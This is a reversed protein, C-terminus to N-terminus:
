ASQRDELRTSCIGRRNEPSVDCTNSMVIGLIPAQKNEGFQIVQLNTWGDGQLVDHGHQGAISYYNFHNPFDSLAKVLGVRQDETLYYPIHDKIADTSIEVM